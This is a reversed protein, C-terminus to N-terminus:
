LLVPRTITANLLFNVTRELLKLQERSLRSCAIRESRTAHARWVEAHMWLTLGGWCLGIRLQKAPCLVKWLTEKFDCSFKVLNLKCRCKVSFMKLPQPFLKSCAHLSEKFRWSVRILQRQLLYTSIAIKLNCFSCSQFGYHYCM